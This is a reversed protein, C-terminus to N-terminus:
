SDLQLPNQDQGDSVLRPRSCRSDVVVVPQPISPHGDLEVLGVLNDVAVDLNDVVGDRNDVVAEGQRGVDAAVFVRRFHSGAVLGGPERDASRPGM